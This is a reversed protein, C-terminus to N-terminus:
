RRRRDQSSSYVGYEIEDTKSLELNEEDEEENYSIYKELIQNAKEGKILM